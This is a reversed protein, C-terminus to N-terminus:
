RAQYQALVSWLYEEADKPPPNYNLWQKLSLLVANDRINRNLRDEVVMAATMKTERTEM